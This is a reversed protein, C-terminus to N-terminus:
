FTATGSNSDLKRIIFSKGMDRHGQATIYFMGTLRGQCHTLYFFFGFVYLLRAGQFTGETLIIDSIIQDSGHDQM